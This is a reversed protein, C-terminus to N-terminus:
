GTLDSFFRADAREKNFVTGIVRGGRAHVQERATSADAPTSRDAELVIVVGDVHACVDLAANSGDISPADVIIWDAARRLATWWDARDSMRVREGAKLQDARFRTVMLRTGEIQHVALLKPRPRRDSVPAGGSLRYLDTIGLSADFARGPRGVAGAFGTDFAAFANNAKFDLDVLWTSKLSRHATLLALSAAVSTVGLGTTPGTFLIVQGRSKAPLRSAAQWLPSLDDRVDRVLQSTAAKAM